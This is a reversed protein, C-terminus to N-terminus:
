SKGEKKVRKLAANLLRMDRDTNVWSTNRFGSFVSGTTDQFANEIITEAANILEEIATM